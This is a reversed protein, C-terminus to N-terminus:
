WRSCCDGSRWCGKSQHGCRSGFFPLKCQFELRMKCVKKSEVKKYFLQVEGLFRVRVEKKSNGGRLSKRFVCIFEEIDNKKVFKENNGLVILGKEWIGM